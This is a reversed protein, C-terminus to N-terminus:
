RALVNFASSSIALVYAQACRAQSLYLRLTGDEMVAAASVEVGLSLVDNFRGGISGRGGM